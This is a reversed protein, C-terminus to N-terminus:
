KKKPSWGLKRLTGFVYADSRKKGLGLHKAEKKLKQEVAKPM